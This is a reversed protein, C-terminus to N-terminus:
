RQARQAEATPVDHAPDWGEKLIARTLPPFQEIIQRVIQETVDRSPGTYGPHRCALQIAGILCVMEMYGIEINLPRSRNAEMCEAIWEDMQPPKMM